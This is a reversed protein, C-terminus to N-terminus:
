NRVEGAGMAGFAMKAASPDKTCEMHWLKVRAALEATLDLFAEEKGSPCFTQHRLVPLLEEEGAQRIANERGRSLLCIGGLPVTINESLGHKGNWPSGCALVEEGLILFPKDDNVMRARNGFVERWLRTHTSKGTGCPATFLYARGDVAVTSGHTLLIRHCFLFEAMKRQLVQRELFPEAFVRKKMGEEEAERFLAEQEQKRDEATSFLHIEPGEETLYDRFYHATTEFEATIRATHGAIKMSFSTM